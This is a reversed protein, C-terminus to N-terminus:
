GTMGGTLEEAPEDVDAKLGLGTWMQGNTTHRKGFGERAGREAMRLSFTKQSLVFEGVAQAWARYAQYLNSSTVMAKPMRVCREEIFAGLTDMEQEYDATAQIVELPTGLGKQQWELCGKVAWALVGPLEARFDALLEDMPRRESDPIRVEFPVLRIRDWIAEDRGIIRPKHNTSLFIKFHPTYEFWEARMFRAAIRDGGTMDKIAAEDLVKSEGTESASVFRAGKLRAIDNPISDGHKVMLTQVPTRAAYQEGLLMRIAEIFVTKGNKGTGYLIFVCREATSGTLSYGVARRLFAGLDENADTIRTLFAKWKPCDATPDYAVPAFRTVLDERRHPQLEGSRLDLTGNQCNLLWIDRDLDDPKVPINPESRALSLMAAIRTVSESHQAHALLAERDDPNSLTRVEAYLKLVADKARQEAAALDTRWHKGSWTLWHGFEYCHRLDQGHLKVLRQANGYDTLALGRLSDAPANPDDTLRPPRERVEQQGARFGSEFTHRTKEPEEALLGCLEAGRMCLARAESEPIRKKALYFAAANLAENRYGSVVFGRLFDLCDKNLPKLPATPLSPLSKVVCSEFTGTKYTDGGDPNPENPLLVQTLKETKPFVEIDGRRNYGWTKAWILFAEIPLPEALHYFCHLGRGSKSTFRVAKAGLFRDVADALHVNSAQGGHGDFDICFRAVHGDRHPVLGLRLGGKIKYGRGDRTISDFEEHGLTGKRWADVARNVDEAGQVWGPGRDKGQPYIVCASDPECHPLLWELLATRHIPESM